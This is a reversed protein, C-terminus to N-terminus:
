SANRWLVLFPQSLVLMLASRLKGEVKTNIQMESLLASQKKDETSQPRSTTPVTFSDALSCNWFLLTWERPGLSMAIHLSRKDLQRVKDDSVAALLAPVDNWGVIGNQGKNCKMAIQVFTSRKQTSNAVRHETLQDSSTM